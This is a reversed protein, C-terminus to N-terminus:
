KEWWDMNSEKRDSEEVKKWMEQEWEKSGAAFKPTQPRKVWHKAERWAYLAADAMDNPFRDDEKPPDTDANWQLRQWEEVIPSNPRVKIHGNRFDTNMLKIYAQKQTKDAPEFNIKHRQNIEETVKKGLGGSDIVRRAFKGYKEELAICRKAFATIDQHSGSESHVLYLFPLDECFAWICIADADHWGIDCGLIYRWDHNKPLDYFDNREPKYKYIIVNEDKVWQGLWERRFSNDDETIGKRKLHEDQIEKVSKGSKLPIWPNEAMTWHFHTWGDSHCADYFYGACAGNPTGVLILDGGMDILSAELVDNILEHMISDRFSQCEDIGVITFAKGRLKNIENKDKAGALYLYTGNPFEVWLKQANFKCGLDYTHDIHILSPWIIREATGRDLSVYAMNSNPKDLGKAIFLGALAMTGGARRSKDFTKFRKKSTVFDLQKQFLSGDPLSCHKELTFRGQSGKTAAKAIIELIISQAEQVDM